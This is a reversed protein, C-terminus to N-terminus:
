MEIESKYKEKSTRKEKQLNTEISKSHEKERDTQPEKKEIAKERNAKILDDFQQMFERDKGKTSDMKLTEKGNKDKDSISYSQQKGQADKKIEVTLGIKKMEAKLQSHTRIDKQKIREKIHDIKVLDNENLIEKM